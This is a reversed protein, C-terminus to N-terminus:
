RCVPVPNVTTSPMERERRVWPGCVQWLIAAQAQRTGGDQRVSSSRQEERGHRADRMAGQTERVNQFPSFVQDCASSNNADAYAADTGTCPERNVWPM